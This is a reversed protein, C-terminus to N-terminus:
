WNDYYISRRVVLVRILAGIMVVVAVIIVIFAWLPLLGIRLSHAASWGSGNDAGDVAQVIWYYKGLPLAQTEQLTYTTETLGSVSVLPDVFEGTAALDDSTAIQLSYCVGSDDSVASWQFAPTEKGILGMSSGDSPSHLQPTDPHNSEMTFVASAANQGSYGAAVLREGYPSEPVPFDADFSGRDDTEATTVQEGDYLIVVDESAAFGYGTVTLNTDVHGQAPSLVIDPEIEFSVEGVDEKKTYDGEATVGYEGGPMEAVDFSAQWEGESNARIDTVVAQGDFLIQIGKEYATFRSGTMTVTDDVFGASKDLSTGATIRFLADEVEYLHSMAGQADLKHEGRTSAPVQFTTEWSGKANAKIGSGVTEYTDALYYLLEIGDENSAFGKGEVTVTMGPPGNDPTVTLGPKVTFYTDVETYGADALVQYHGSCGEPITIMITFAGNSSARGTAVLDGDYYIDVLKGATCDSGHIIVDTGPLGSKLSLEIFPGACQAQAPAVPLAIAVLCGVLVVLLRSLLRM